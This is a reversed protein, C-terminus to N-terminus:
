LSLFDSESTFVRTQNIITVDKKPSQLQIRCQLLAIEGKKKQEHQSIFSLYCVFHNQQNLKSGRLSQGAVWPLWNAINELVVPWRLPWDHRSPQFDQIDLVWAQGRLFQSRGDSRHKWLTGQDPFPTQLRWCSLSGSLVEQFCQPTLVEKPFSQAILALVYPLYLLGKHM